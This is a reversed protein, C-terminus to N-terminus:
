LWIDNDGNEPKSNPVSLRLLLQLRRVLVGLGVKLFRLLRLM